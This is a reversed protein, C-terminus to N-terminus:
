LFSSSLNLLPRNYSPIGTRAPIFGNLNASYNMIHILKAKKRGKVVDKANKEAFFSAAM